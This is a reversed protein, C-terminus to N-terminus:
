RGRLRSGVAVGALAIAAGLLIAAMTGERDSLLSRAAPAPAPAQRAPAPTRSPKGAAGGAEPTTDDAAVAAEAAEEAEEPAGGRAIDEDIATFFQGALRKAVSGLMRQGVGGVPGGVVADATWALDTGGDDAPSLDVHVDANITGPGGAGALTLVFSEPENEKSFHATGDYSGKISAVGAVVTMAYTGPETERLSQAGPLTRQLVDADHFAAWATERDASLHNTGTIQM